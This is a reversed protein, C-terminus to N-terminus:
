VQHFTHFIVGVNEDVMPIIFGRIRVKLVNMMLLEPLKAFFEPRKINSFLFQPYEIVDILYHLPIIFNNSPLDMRLRGEAISSGHKLALM